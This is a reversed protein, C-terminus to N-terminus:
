FKALHRLFEGFYEPLESNFILREGTRPHTFGLERAHLCQGNLQVPLSKNSSAYVPDGAVPHGLYALHVRIQHTRGTELQLRLYDFGSYSCLVNYHTIAEKSSRHTVAMRKRHVPHRGIPANITGEAEKLHGYVIAEYYRTFSHEKIQEALSRHALDNKAVILLGSTDKDIRHVIGPRMVGNIGSLSGKCHALLANVLTGSYNGAAPHVVMGQPKNVILLDEDEFVIDLPIEEAQAEYVQPEPLEATIRDGAKIKLSKAAAKGNCFVCNQETLGQLFSRSQEPLNLSLLKDLRLGSQEESVVFELRKM